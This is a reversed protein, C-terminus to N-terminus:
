SAIQEVGGSSQRWTLVGAWWMWIWILPVGATAAGHVGSFSPANFALGALLLAVGGILGLACLVTPFRTSRLMAWALAVVAAGTAGWMMSEASFGATDLAVVSTANGGHDALVAAAMALAYATVEFVVGGLMALVGFEAVPDAHGSARLGHKLGVAFLVRGLLAVSFWGAAWAFANGHGAYGALVKAPATGPEDLVDVGGAGVIGVWECFYLVVGALALRNGSRVRVTQTKPAPRATLFTMTTGRENHIV